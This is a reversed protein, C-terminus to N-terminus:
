KLEPQYFGNINVTTYSVNKIKKEDIELELINGKMTPESFYQDFVFNGLSYAVWKNGGHKELFESVHPHSGIIIDAGAELIEKAQDKQTSNPEEEYEEGWHLSVALIDVQKKAEAIDNKIKEFNDSDLFAIGPRFNSALWGRPGILDYALFGIKTDKAEIIKLAFAEIEDVGAGVHEIGANELNKLNDKLADTGYDFAHNNASSVIDFGAYLLGDLAEPEARFSYISGQKYGKDSIISELNGFLIDARQLYNKIKLFPFKYDSSGEKKIMYEVGRDLMIDGVAMLIIKSDSKQTKIENKIVVIENLKFAIFFGVLIFLILFPFFFKNKM